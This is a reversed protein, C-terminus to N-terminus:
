KSSAHPGDIEGLASAQYVEATEGNFIFTVFGLYGDFFSYKEGNCLVLNYEYGTMIDDSSIHDFENVGDGRKWAMSGDSNLRIEIDYDTSNYTLTNFKYLKDLKVKNTDLGREAWINTEFYKEMETVYGSIMTNEKEAAATYKTAANNAHSFLSGENVASITVVALILLVIITIILAVLTIGKEERM